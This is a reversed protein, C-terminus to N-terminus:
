LPFEARLTTGATPTSTVDLTGRLAEVRDTLGRLGTGSGPDAGGRGDDAVTVVLRARERRVSLSARTAAAHKAVNTLAEAAVYYVAVELTAPFREEPAHEVSVPLPARRALATLAPGLGLEALVPPQLGRAIQRLEGLAERADAEAEGLLALLHRDKGARRQALNLKLALTVLRQQAGDHLDREIRRREEDAAAALRARSDLLQERADASAIALALLDAFAALRREVDEVLEERAAVVIAGWPAAIPAAVSSTFGQRRMAAAIASDADTDAARAAEGTALVRGLASGPAVPIASGVPFVVLDGGFRGVVTATADAAYRVVASADAGAVRAVEAAVADFVVEAAAEGAVLTAVRRLAAQEELRRRLEAHLARLEAAARDRETLDIGVTLLGSVSGDADVIPRNSWAIVLRDGDRTLWHGVQPSPSPEDALQEIFVGFAEAEEPPIVTERADRGVVEDAAFGTARECAEDFLVIRGDAGLVCVMGMGTRALVDVYADPALPADVPPLSIRRAM